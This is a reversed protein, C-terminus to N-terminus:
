IENLYKIAENAAVAGDGTATVLQRVEKTRNDGAVFIGAASSKCDEGAEAYGGQDLKVVSAFEKNEPEKGIAVFLAEADLEKTEEGNQQIIIKELKEEGKLETVVSKLFIEVNDKDELKKVSTKAGRFGDNRHILFVKKAVGSLYLAEELATNGGGVVAVNKSTYFAGDCTACYSVGRGKFKDENMAGLKRSDCGTALIIAKASYEGEATKIIKEQGKIKIGTAREFKLEAGLEKAQEYLKKALEAGSVHPLGPYNEIDLTNIIQGGYMKGELILTKKAARQTYIAATLGAPGAGVIIVDYM